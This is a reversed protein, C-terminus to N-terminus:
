GGEPSGKQTGRRAGRRPIRTAGWKLCREQPVWQTVEKPGRKTALMQPVYRFGMQPGRPADGNTIGSISSGKASVRQPGRKPVRKRPRVPLGLQLGVKPSGGRHFGMPLVRDPSGNPVFPPGVQPVRKAGMPLREKSVGQPVGKAPSAQPSM